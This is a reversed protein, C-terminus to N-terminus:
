EAAKADLVEKVKSALQKLTFPKPLFNFKRETGFTDAFAEEAYGSIFVVEISKMREAHDSYLTTVMKPGNIGPMVVDSIILDIPGTHETFVELANEGSDAELVEYGKNRLARAAFIRM